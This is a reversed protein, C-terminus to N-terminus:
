FIHMRSACALDIEFTQVESMKRHLRMMYATEELHLIHNHEAVFDYVKYKGTEKVLSVHLRVPCDTRVEDRHRIYLRKDIKRVGEKCCIFGRSTVKGNLKSKNQFGKRVGFDMQKGYNEWHNWADDVINFEMGAQPTWDLYECKSILQIHRRGDKKKKKKTHIYSDNVSVIYFDFLFALICYIVWIQGM